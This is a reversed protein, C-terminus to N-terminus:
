MYLEIPVLNSKKDERTVYTTKLPDLLEVSMQFGKGQTKKTM